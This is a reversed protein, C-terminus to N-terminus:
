PRIGFAQRAAGLHVGGGLDIIAGNLWEARGDILLEIFDAVDECDMNEGRPTMDAATRLAADGFHMRSLAGTPTVGFRLGNVRVGRAGLEVAMYSVYTNLAAKAAGVACFGPLVMSDLLNPLALLQSGPPLLGAHFLAQGWVLFSHAMVEFTKHLQKPHLQKRPDEHVVRGPSADALSHVVLDLTAGGLAERVQEALEPVHETRGADAEILVARAGAAQAGAVLAAAEEPHNGRHLGLVSVGCKQTLRRAVAGGTGVTCGLVLAWRESSM